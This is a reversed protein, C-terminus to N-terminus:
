LEQNVKIKQRFLINSVYYATVCLVFMLVLMLAISISVIKANNQVFNEIVNIVYYNPLADIVEPFNSFLVASLFPLVSFLLAWMAFIAVPAKSVSPRPFIHLCESCQVRAKKLYSRYLSPVGLTLWAPVIFKLEPTQFQATNKCKPCKM